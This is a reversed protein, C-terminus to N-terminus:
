RIGHMLKKVIPSLLICLVGLAVSVATLIWFFYSIGSEEAIGESAGGFVGALKMGIAIALYYMGYMFAIMRGPVLKSVLSLSVPSICLEGLTHFLYVLILWIISVSATKAGPAIGDSGFAVCAMGLGLLFMGIAYKM